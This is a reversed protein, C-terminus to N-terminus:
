ELEDYIARIAAEQRVSAYNPYRASLDILAVAEDANQGAAMTSQVAALFDATFQQYERLDSWTTVPIHGPIITDVNQIGALMRELTQPFEVGSGGNNRDLFPADRWPFMDGTQLVRLSPYVVVTDGDTHGRGFYYLEIRDVGAGITLQEAYTRKPLYKANEGQFADMRMMNAKTNEHAVIEVLEPFFANSGNHDGHTHTNIIRIVPKDTITRVRDLIVQGWGSLKTDVITVGEDTVFVGTNGGSFAERNTPSSGTIVYLNGRVQELQAADLAAQELSQVSSLTISLGGILIIASLTIARRM